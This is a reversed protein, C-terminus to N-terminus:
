KGNRSKLIVVFEGKESINPSVESVKGSYTEEFKKTLERAVFVERDGVVDKLEDLLKKIRFPSEYIIVAQPEQSIARIATQRGKKLPLFGYFTFEKIEFGSISLAATLASPGPIVEVKAGSERAENVLINGPDSIGPTGADTVIAVNKGAELEKIIFEIKSSKSHQHYSVLHNKIEFHNLLKLTQRTDECAIIDVFKLTEVARFTMDSLNGIPTAVVYLIGM